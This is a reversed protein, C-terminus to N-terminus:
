NHKLLSMDMFRYFSYGNEWPCSHISIDRTEHIKEQRLLAILLYINFESLFPQNELVRAGSQM